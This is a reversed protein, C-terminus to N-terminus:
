DREEESDDNDETPRRAYDDEFTAKNRADDEDREASVLEAEENADRVILLNARATAKSIIGDSVLTTLASAMYSLDQPSNLKFVIKMASIDTGTDKDPTRMPNHLATDYLKCRRMFGAQFQSIKEAVKQDTGFLKYAMAVGSANSAFQEDSLDPVMALKHLDNKIQDQLVQVGTEDMTKELYSASGSDDDFQMVRHKKVSAVSEDVEEPTKGFVHGTIVMIARVFADKDDLRDSMLKNYADQLPIINEFDGMRESNNTYEILPVRQFGHPQPDSEMVWPGNMSKSTWIQFDTRSYLYLRYTIEGNEDKETYRIAGFVSDDEIDGAYAVFADRPSFVASKPIGKEDLYVLEYAVGYISLNQAIESEVKSKTQKQYLDIIEQAQADEDACTYEPPHGVMYGKFASVIYYCLNSVIHNENDSESYIPHNGIFYDHLSDYRTQYSDWEKMALKISKPTIETQTRIKNSLPIPADMTKM